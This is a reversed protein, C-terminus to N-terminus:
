KITITNSIIETLKKRLLIRAKFLQTKSTSESCGLADAIDKHSYEEFVYMNFVARYGAPLECVMLLIDEKSIQSAYESFIDSEDGQEQLTELIHENELWRQNKTKDRLFNLATNVTIRKLWGEFSGEPRELFSDIKSLIKIFSDHLTDEADARIGCYRMCIGLLAPAYRDHLETLADRDKNKVGQILAKETLM